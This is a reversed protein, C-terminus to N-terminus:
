GDVGGSVLYPNGPSPILHFDYARSADLITLQPKIVTALDALVALVYVGKINKCADGVLIM